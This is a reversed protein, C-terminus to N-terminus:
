LSRCRCRRAIVELALEVPLLNARLQQRTSTVLVASTLKELTGLCECRADLCESACRHPRQPRQRARQWPVEAQRQQRQSPSQPVCVAAGAGAIPM